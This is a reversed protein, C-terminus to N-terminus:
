CQEFSIDIIPSPLHNLQCFATMFSHPGSNPDGAGVYFGPATPPIYLGLTPSAFVPPNRPSEPWSTNSFNTLELNLSVKDSFYSPTISSSVSHRGSM